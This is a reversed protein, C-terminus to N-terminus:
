TLKISAQLVDWVAYGIMIFLGIFTAVLVGVVSIAVTVATKRKVM